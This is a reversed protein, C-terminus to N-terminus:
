PHLRKGVLITGRPPGPSFDRKNKGRAAKPEKRRTSLFRAVTSLKLMSSLRCSEKEAWRVEADEEGEDAGYRRGM